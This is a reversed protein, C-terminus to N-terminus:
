IMQGRPIGTFMEGQELKSSQPLVVRVVKIPHLDINTLYEYVIMQSFKNILQLKQEILSISCKIEDIENYQILEQTIQRKVFLSRESFIWDDRTASIRMLWTQIGEMFCNILAELKNVSAGMSNFGGVADSNWCSCSFTYINFCSKHYKLEIDGVNQQIWHVYKQASEPLSNLNIIIPSDDKAVADRELIEILGSYIALNIDTHAGLGTTGAFFLKLALSDTTKNKYDVLQKPLYVVRKSNFEMAKVAKITRCAIEKDCSKQVSDPLQGFNILVGPDIHEEAAYREIAEVACSVFASDRDLGKGSDVILHIADPRISQFVYVLTDEYGTINAIRTVGINNLIPILANILEKTM